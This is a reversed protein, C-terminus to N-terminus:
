NWDIDPAAPDDGPLAPPPNGGPGPVDGPNDDPDTPNEPEESAALIDSVALFRLQAHPIKYDQKM